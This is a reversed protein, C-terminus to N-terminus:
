VINRNDFADHVKQETGATNGNVDLFEKISHERAPPSRQEEDEEEDIDEDNDVNRRQEEKMMLKENFAVVVATAVHQQQEQERRTFNGWDTSSNSESPSGSPERWDDSDSVTGCMKAPVPTPEARDARGNGSHPPSHEQLPKLKGGNMHRVKDEKEEDVDIDEEDDENKRDDSDLRDGGEGDDDTTEKGNIVLEKTVSTVTIQAEDEQEEDVDMREVESDDSDMKSEEKEVLMASSVENKATVPTKPTKSLDDFKESPEDVTDMWLSSQYRSFWERETHDDNFTVRNSRAFYSSKPSLEETEEETGLSSQRARFTRSSDAVCYEAWPDAFSEGRSKPLRDFVVRGGRGMRRRAFGISRMKGSTTPLFTDYFKQNPEALKATPQQTPAPPPPPPIAVVPTSPVTTTSPASSIPAPAVTASSVSAIISINVSPLAARYVCGRRRKFAFKGDAPPERVPKTTVTPAVGNQAFLTPVRNWSEANKKLWAKSVLDKDGVKRRIRKKKKPVGGDETTGNIESLPKSATAAAAAAAAAAEEEAARIKETFENYANALGFDAMEMRKLLIESEADILALKQKERRTTMDFLQQAKSMDHVLKLIKEYSDEDNKRNKRTQMKEARRRFAVYPNVAGQGDKRCETRVKPILGGVGICGSTTAASTRKALWYEYVEYVISSDLAKHFNIVSDESAIQTESSHSEVTDFVKELIRPEIHQHDALWEEDETDYDYEPEDRELQQWAHVKIYKDRRKLNRNQYTSHYRDHDVHDVKPTPIVHNVQVGSTSAQQALIADQLHSEMEEEKEMGTPMQTVARNGVSCEALDPLEHGWYVTMSRNSDFARARFAKSATAM